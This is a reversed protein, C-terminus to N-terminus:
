DLSPLGACVLKGTRADIILNGKIDSDSSPNRTKPVFELLQWVPRKGRAGCVSGATILQAGAINKLV